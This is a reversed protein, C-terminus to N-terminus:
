DLDEDDFDDPFDACRPVTTRLPEPELISRTQTRGRLVPGLAGNFFDTDTKEMVHEHEILLSDEPDVDMDTPNIM